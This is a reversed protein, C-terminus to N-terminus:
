TILACRARSAWIVVQGDTDSPIMGAVSSRAAPRCFVEPDEVALLDGDLEYRTVQRDSLRALDGHVRLHEGPQGLDRDVARPGTVEEGCQARLLSDPHWVRACEQEHRGPALSGRLCVRNSANTMSPSARCRPPPGRRPTNSTPASEASAHRRIRGLGPGANRCAPATSATVAPNSGLVGFMARTSSVPQAALVVIGGVPGFAVPQQLDVRLQRIQHLLVPCENDAGDGHRGVQATLWNM